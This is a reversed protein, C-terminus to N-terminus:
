ELADTQLEREVLYLFNEIPNCDPIEPPINFQVVNLREM